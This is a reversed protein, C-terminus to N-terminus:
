VAWAGKSICTQCYILMLHLCCCAAARIFGQLNLGVNTLGICRYGVLGVFVALLGLAIRLRIQLELLLRKNAVSLLLCIIQM